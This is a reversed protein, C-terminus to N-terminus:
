IIRLFIAVSILNAWSADASNRAATEKIRICFGALLKMFTSIERAATDWPTWLCVAKVATLKVTM